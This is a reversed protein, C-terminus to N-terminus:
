VQAPHPLINTRQPQYQYNNSYNFQNARQHNNINNYLYEKNQVIKISNSSLSTSTSSSSATSTTSEGTNMKNNANSALLDNQYNTFLLDGSTSSPMPPQSKTSLQNINLRDFNLNVNGREFLGKQMQMSKQKLDERFIDSVSHVQESVNVPTSHIILLNKNQSNAQPDVAQGNANIKYYNNEPLQPNKSSYCSGMASYPRNMLSQQYICSNKTLIRSQHQHLQQQQQQLEQQQNLKQQQEMFKIQQERLLSQQQEYLYQQQRQNYSMKHNDTSHYFLCERRNNAGFYTPKSNTNIRSATLHRSMAQPQPKQHVNANTNSSNSNNSATTTLAASSSSSSSSIVVDNISLNNSSNSNQYNFNNNNM